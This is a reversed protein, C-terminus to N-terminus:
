GCVASVVDGSGLRPLSSVCRLMGAAARGGGSGGGYDVGFLIESRVDQSRREGRGVCGIGWRELEFEVRRTIGTRQVAFIELREHAHSAMVGFSLEFCLVSKWTM